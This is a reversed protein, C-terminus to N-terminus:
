PGGAARRADRAAAFSPDLEIARDFDAIGSEHRGAAAFALGRNYACWAAKPALALCASFAAVAEAPQGLKLAAVGRYHNAWLSRPDRALAADFEIAAGAADGAALLSRGATLHDWAGRAPLTAAKRGAEAAEVNEGLARAHRARELEIVRAPGLLREAEALITVAQRRTATRDAEPAARVALDATLVATDLLDDRWRDDRDTTPQGALAAVFEERRDWLERCRAEVARAQEDPLPDSAATVRAREVVEHLDDAAAARAATTRADRLERRLSGHFPLGEALAEGSRLAEVAEAYRGAAAHARGDRLAEAARDAHRDAQLGLAGGVALLAAITLALPFAFPRRRRWKGWREALSRNGVGKLPLDSLHRRLDAAMDGACAYRDAASATTCKALVDALGPSVTCGTARLFETLLVGLGFVDARGDVAEPVPKGVRVAEVAAQQEPAMFGPTGGLRDPPSEGAALPPRALHFDLLMPVGDAAVLVNSPKLDLHVLGHDHAYQLGDALCAGIWCAADALSARDLFAWAPGGVAPVDAPKRGARVVGLLDGGTPRQAAALEVQIAALTAGGFDPMCLARLRREPFEHVSYLPVIHTHQLRALSLHEEGSQPGVKLVVSRSALAPQTALYVRGHLGRGLEPGLRFDGLWDGPTPFAPPGLAGQCDFLAAVQAPWRPFRAALEAPTTPVRYEDRLTLEEAVLELALDPQRALDPHRALFEDATPREGARWRAAM